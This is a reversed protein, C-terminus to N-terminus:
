LKEGNLQCNEKNIKKGFDELNEKNVIWVFSKEYTNNSALKTCKKGVKVKHTSCNTLLLFSFIILLTKM